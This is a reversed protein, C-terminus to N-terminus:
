LMDKVLEPIVEETTLRVGLCCGMEKLNVLRAPPVLGVTKFLIELQSPQKRRDAMEAKLEEQSLRELAKRINQPRSCQLFLLENGSKIPVTTASNLARIIESISLPTGSEKLKWQLLKLIGLAIVCILIHGKIHNSNRVYMPRLGLHSKMIRFCSEIKNLEHYTSALREEPVTGKQQCNPANKYILAAYGALRRKAEFIEEDIGEIRAETKESTKAISAWGCCKPKVKIGQAQKKLVLQKWVELVALDRKQRKKDFTLVLTCKTDEKRKGKKTWDRLVKFRGVEEGQRIIPVYGEPDFMAKTAKQDLNSVKQAMLFGLDNNQLMKLNAASNLGRDAVVISEKVDYKQKLSEISSAMTKFESANGAYVYFDIPIGEENIVLAISTLPLDFRHEKSPGRMRLYEIKQTQIKKIFDNTKQGPLLKGEKDFCTPDLEGSEYALLVEEQLRDQFDMQQRGCELDTLATEFHVNTVDYFILTAKTKGLQNNISRNFFRMISDKHEFLYDYSNYYSDLGIGQVPAGLFSDQDGFSYFVSHPDLIKLFCLYSVVANLDFKAKTQRNRIDKFKRDLHLHDDWIKKLLYHGYQLLPLPAGASSNNDFSLLSQVQTLRNLSQLRSKEAYDERYKKKLNELYDPDSQSLIDLRGLNQVVKHKVKGNEDRYSEMLRVYTYQGNAGGKCTSVYM